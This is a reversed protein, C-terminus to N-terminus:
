RGCPCSIGVEGCSVLTDCVDSSSCFAGSSPHSPLGAPCEWTQSGKPKCGLAEYCPNPSSSCGHRAGNLYAVGGRCEFQINSSSDGCAAVFVVVACALLLHVTRM